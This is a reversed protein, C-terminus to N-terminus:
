AASDQTRLTAGRRRYFELQDTDLLAFPSDIEIVLDHV